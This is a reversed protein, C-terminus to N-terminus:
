EKGDTDIEVCDPNDPSPECAEGTIISYGSFHKVRRWVLGTSLDVHTAVSRDTTFDSVGKSGLSPTYLIAFASLASRHTKFYDQNELIYSAFVDTSVIVKASPSFRLSPTFDVAIGDSTRSVTAHVKISQGDGLVTCNKDWETEGYTSVAPDCVSNGSFTVTYAGLSFSGGGGDVVFDSESVGLATGTASFDFAPAAPAQPAARRLSTTPDSCAGISFLAVLTAFGRVSAHMRFQISAFSRGVKAETSSHPSM